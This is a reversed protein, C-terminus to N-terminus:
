AGTGWSFLVYENSTEYFLEVENWQIELGLVFKVDSSMPVTFNEISNIIVGNTYIGWRDPYKSVRSDHSDILQQINKIIWQTEEQIDADTLKHFNAKELVPLLWNDLISNYDETTTELINWEQYFHLEHNLLTIFAELSSIFDSKKYIFYVANCMGEDFTRYEIRDVQAKTSNLLFIKVLELNSKITKLSIEDM